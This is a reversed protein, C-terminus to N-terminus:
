DPGLTSDVSIQNGDGNKKWKNVAVNVVTGDFRLSVESATSLDPHGVPRSRSRAVPGQHSPCRLIATTRNWRANGLRIRAFNLFEAAGNKSTM